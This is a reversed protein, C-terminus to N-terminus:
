RIWEWLAAPSLPTDRIVDQEASFPWEPPAADAQRSLADAVQNAETPLHAVTINLSRTCRVVALAQALDGM